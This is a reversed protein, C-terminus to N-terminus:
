TPEQPGMIRPWTWGFIRAATWSVAARPVDKPAGQASSISSASRTTRWTGDTSLTRKTEEPVSAVILASRTARPKVPRL